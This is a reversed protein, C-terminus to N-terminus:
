KVVNIAVVDLVVVVAHTTCNEFNSNDIQAKKTKKPHLEKYVGHISKKGNMIDYKQKYSANKIVSTT